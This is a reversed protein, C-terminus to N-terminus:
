ARQFGEPTRLGFGLSRDFAIHASWALGAVLWDPRRVLLTVAVLVAPAWFRHVANYIPVARPHLQGRQLGSSMGVLLAIDPAMAFVVLQWWGTHQDGAVAVAVVTAAVGLSAYVLRKV